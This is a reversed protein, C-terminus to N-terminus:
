RRFQEGDLDRKVRRLILNPVPTFPQGVRLDDIDTEVVPPADLQGPQPLPVKFPLRVHRIVPPRPPNFCILALTNSLPQLKYPRHYIPLCYRSIEVENVTSLHM